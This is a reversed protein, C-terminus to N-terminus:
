FIKHWDKAIFLANVGNFVGYNAGLSLAKEACKKHFEKNGTYAHVLWVEDVKSDIFDQIQQFEFDNNRLGNLSKLEFLVLGGEKRLFALDFEVRFLSKNKSITGNSLVLNYNLYELPRKEVMYQHFSIQIPIFEKSIGFSRPEYKTLEEIVPYKWQNLAEEIHPAHLKVGESM